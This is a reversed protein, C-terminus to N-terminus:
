ISATPYKSFVCLYLTHPTSFWSLVSTCLGAARRLKLGMPSLCMSLGQQRAVAGVDDREERTGASYWLFGFLMLVALVESLVLCCPCVPPFQSAGRERKEIDARRQDASVAGFIIDM